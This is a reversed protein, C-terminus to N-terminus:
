LLIFYFFIIIICLNKEWIPCKRQYKSPHFSSSKQKNPQAEWSLPRLERILSWVQAGQLPFLTRVAPGGLVDWSPFSYNQWKLLSVSTWYKSLGSFGLFIHVYIFYISHTSLWYTMDLEKRDWPSHIVWWAGRDTPNKWALISTHTAMDEELLDGRGLSQVWM